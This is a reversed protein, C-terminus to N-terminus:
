GAKQIEKALVKLCGTMVAMQFVRLRAWREALHAARWGDKTWERMEAMRAGWQSVLPEAKKKGTSNVM